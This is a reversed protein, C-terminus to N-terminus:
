WFSTDALPPGNFRSFGRYYNSSLYWINAKSALVNQTEYCMYSRMMYIFDPDPDAEDDLYSLDRNSPPGHRLRRNENEYMPLTFDLRSSFNPFKLALQTRVEPTM